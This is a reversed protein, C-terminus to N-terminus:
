RFCNASLWALQDFGDNLCSAILLGMPRWSAAEERARQIRRCGGSAGHGIREAVRVDVVGLAPEEDGDLHRAVLRHEADNGIPRTCTIRESFLHAFTPIAQEFAVGFGPAVRKDHHRIVEVGHEADVLPGPVLGVVEGIQELAELAEGRVFVVGHCPRPVAGVDAGAEPLRAVVIVQDGGARFEFVDAGVDLVVGGMPVAVAEAGHCGVM